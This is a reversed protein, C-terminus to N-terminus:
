DDQPRSLRCRVVHALVAWGLHAYAPASGTFTDLRVRVHGSLPDVPNGSTAVPCHMSGRRTAASLCDSRPTGSEAVRSAGPRRNRLYRGRMAM